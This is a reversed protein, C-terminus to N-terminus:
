RLINGPPAMLVPLVVNVCSPSKSAREILRATPPDPGRYGSGDVAEPAPVAATAGLPEQALLKESAKKRLAKLLRQVISHQRRGFQHPHKESLRGVIAIATLQPEEALWNEITVVHPDLKSPM